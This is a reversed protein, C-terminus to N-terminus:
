GARKSGQQIRYLEFTAVLGAAKRHDETIENEASELRQIILLSEKMQIQRLAAQVDFRPKNM